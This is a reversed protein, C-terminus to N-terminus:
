RVDVCCEKKQHFTKVIFRPADHQRIVSGYESFFLPSYSSREAYESLMAFAKKSQLEKTSLIMYLSDDYRFLSGDKVGLSVLRCCASLVDEFCGFVYVVEDREEVPMEIKEIPKTGETKLEPIAPAEQQRKLILVVGEPVLGLAEVTLRLSSDTLTGEEMANQLVGALFGQAQATYQWLDKIGINHTTLDEASVLIQIREETIKEVKM